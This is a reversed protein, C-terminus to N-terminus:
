AAGIIRRAAASLRHRWMSAIVGVGGGLGGRAAAALRASRRRSAVLKLSVLAASASMLAM